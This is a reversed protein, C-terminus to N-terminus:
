HGFEQSPYPQRHRTPRRLPSKPFLCRRVPRNMVWLLPLVVGAAMISLLAAAGMFALMMGCVRLVASLLQMVWDMTGQDYNM